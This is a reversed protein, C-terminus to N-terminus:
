AVKTAASPWGGCGYEIVNRDSYEAISFDESFEVVYPIFEAYDVGDYALEIAGTWFLEPGNGTGDVFACDLAVVGDAAMKHMKEFPDEMTILDGVKSIKLISNQVEMSKVSFRHM